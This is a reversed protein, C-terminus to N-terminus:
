AQAVLCRSKLGYKQGRDCDTLFPYIRAECEKKEEGASQRRHRGNQSTMNWDSARFQANTIYAAM